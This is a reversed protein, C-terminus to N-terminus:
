FYRIARIKVNTSTSKSITKIGGSSFDIAIANNNNAQTSSWYNSNSFSGLNEVKLNEYMLSLENESPLFWDNTNNIQYLLVKKSAVTGNNLSNCISPNIYYNSLNDHYNAILVSNLLGAGIESNNTNTVVSGFCGWESADSDILATEMYRWGNTYSGKDYFVLGGAPGTAGITYNTISQCSQKLIINKPNNKIIIENGLFEIERDKNWNQAVQSTGELNINLHLKNDVFLFIWTGSYNINNYSFDLNGNEDVEFFGSAYKNDKGESYPIKWICSGIPNGFLNSCYGIIDEKSCSDIALKLETNSNVSFVTGDELTTKIPYSISISQNDPLGGLFASFQIDSSLIQSGIQELNEDYILIKFPYIFDLCVIKEIPNDGEDSSVKRLLNFLESNKKITESTLLLGEGIPENVCSFFISFLCIVLINLNKM